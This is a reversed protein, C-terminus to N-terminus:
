KKQFDTGTYDYGYLFRRLYVLFEPLDDDFM